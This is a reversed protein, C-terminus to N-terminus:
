SGTVASPDVEPSRGGFGLPRGPSVSITRTHYASASHVPVGTDRTPRPSVNQVRTQQFQTGGTLSYPSRDEDGFRLPGRKPSSGHVASM